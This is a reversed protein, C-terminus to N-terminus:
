LEILRVHPLSPTHAHAGVIRICISICLSYAPSLIDSICSDLSITNPQISRCRVPENRTSLPDPSARAYSSPPCSARALSITSYHASSFPDLDVRRTTLLGGSREHADCTNEEQLAFDSKTTAQTVWGTVRDPQCRMWCRLRRPAWPPVLNAGRNSEETRM